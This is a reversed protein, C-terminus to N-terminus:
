ILILSGALTCWEGFIWCCTNGRLKELSVTKGNMDKKEFNKAPRGTRFDRSRELRQAIVRGYPSVKLKPSAIIFIKAENEDFWIYHEAVVGDGLTIYSDPNGRIFEM